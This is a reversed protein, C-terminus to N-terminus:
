RALEVAVNDLEAGGAGRWWSGLGVDPNADWGGRLAFSWDPGPADRHAGVWAGTRTVGDGKIWEVPPGPDGASTM